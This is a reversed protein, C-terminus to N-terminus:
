ISPQYRLYTPCYEYDTHEVVYSSNDKMIFGLIQSIEKINGNHTDFYIDFETLDFEYYFQKDDFSIVVYVIDTCVHNKLEGVLWALLNGSYNPPHGLYGEIRNIYKTPNTLIDLLCKEHNCVKSKRRSQCKIKTTLKTPNYKRNCNYSCLGCIHEVTNNNNNNFKNM